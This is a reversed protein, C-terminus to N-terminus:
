LECIDNETPASTSTGDDEADEVEAEANDELEQTTPAKALIQEKATEYDKSGGFSNILFKVLGTAQTGGLAMIVSSLAEKRLCIARGELENSLQLDRLAQLLFCIETM